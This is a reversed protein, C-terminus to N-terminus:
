VRYQGCPVMGRSGSVSTRLKLVLKFEAKQAYWFKFCLWKADSVLGVLM